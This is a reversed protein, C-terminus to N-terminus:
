KYSKNFIKYKKCIDFVSYWFLNKLIANQMSQLRNRRPSSVLYGGWAVTGYCIRKYVYSFYFIKARKYDHYSGIHRSLVKMRYIKVLMNVHNHFKLKDDTEVGLYIHKLLMWTLAEMM